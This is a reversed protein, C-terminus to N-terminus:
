LEVEKEKTVMGNALISAFSHAKQECTRDDPLQYLSKMEAFYSRQESSMDSTLRISRFMMAQKISSEKPLDYFLKQFKWWHLYSIDNLDIHYCHFFASYILDQDHEYSFIKRGAKIAKSTKMSTEDGCQYFWTLQEISQKLNSPVTPYYLQLAQQIKYFESHDSEMLLAFKIGYRFDSHIEVKKNDIDVYKPFQDILINM